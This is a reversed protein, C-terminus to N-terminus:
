EAWETVLLASLPGDKPGTDLSLKPIAQLSLPSCYRLAKSIAILLTANCRISVAVDVTDGEAGGREKSCTTSLRSCLRVVVPM